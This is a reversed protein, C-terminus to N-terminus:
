DMGPKIIKLAVKRRVPWDQEALFVVGFGGEGIQQLLKYPGIVVGPAEAIPSDITFPEAAPRDMFTGIAEHAILLRQVDTRLQEDEGCAHDLSDPWKEKPVKEVIELFISRASRAQDIM